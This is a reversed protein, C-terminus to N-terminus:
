LEFQSRVKIESSVRGCHKVKVSIGMRQDQFAWMGYQSTISTSSNQM